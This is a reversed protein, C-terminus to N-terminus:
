YNVGFFFFCVFIAIGGWRVLGALDLGEPKQFFFRLGSSMLFIQREKKELFGQMERHEMAQSFLINRKKRRTETTGNRPNIYFISIRPKRVEDLM